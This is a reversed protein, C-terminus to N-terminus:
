DVDKDLLQRFMKSLALLDLLNDVSLLSGFSM